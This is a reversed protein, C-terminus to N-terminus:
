HAFWMQGCQFHDDLGFVPRALDRDFRQDVSRDGIAVHDGVFLQRVLMQHSKSKSRAILMFDPNRGATQPHLPITDPPGLARPQPIRM